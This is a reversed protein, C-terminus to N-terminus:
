LSNRWLSEDMSRYLLAEMVHHERIQKSDDLDAITRSVRILRHYARASLNLQEYAQEIRAKAGKEMPCYQGIKEGSIRSNYRFSEGKFRLQQLRHAQEVRKRIEASSENKQKGVLEEIKVRPAEVSIDIRDLLPRSIKQLHNRIIGPTCTCKNRDPYYGCSCPNMAAVLMFDAPYCYTGNMRMLRIIREELPQRLQELVPKAYETLEDLFLIGMHALSIEGPQPVRGGGILATRTISYHPSRFPRKGMNKEEFMGSVSYIKTLELQEEWTLRPLIGPMARAAMTKGAGPPGVILINHMGAAAVECARRLVRQGNIEGFDVEADYKVATEEINIHESELQIEDNIYAIVEKLSHAPCITIGKVIGAERANEAPVVVKDFGKEQATLVMPLIGKVPRLNGSLTIEGIFLTQEKNRIEVMGFAALVALTIPLDFGTGCKKVDAPCLNITIKKPPLLFGTNRIASRIREKAERVESSLIGVMEFAPMGDCVDAEVQVIMSDIGHVATTAIKSYM